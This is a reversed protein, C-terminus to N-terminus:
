TGTFVWKELSEQSIKMSVQM